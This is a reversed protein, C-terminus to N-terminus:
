TLRAEAFSAWRKPLLAKAGAFGVSGSCLSSERNGRAQPAGSERGDRQREIQHIEIDDFGVVKVFFIAL